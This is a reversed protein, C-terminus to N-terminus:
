IGPLENLSMGNFFKRRIEKQYDDEDGFCEYHEDPNDNQTIKSFFVDPIKDPSVTSLHHDNVNSNSLDFGLVSDGPHLLHGLHTRCHYQSDSMGLETAKCVYVDALIHRQSIPKPVHKRDKEAIQEVDMVVYETLKKSSCITGFPSRWFVNAPFEA